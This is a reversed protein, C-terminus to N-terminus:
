PGTPPLPTQKSPSPIRQGRAEGQEQGQTCIAQGQLPQAGSKAAEQIRKKEPQQSLVVLNSQCWLLQIWLIFALPKNHKSEFKVQFLCYVLCSNGWQRTLVLYFGPCNYSIVTRNTKAHINAELYFSINMSYLIQGGSLVPLYIKWYYFRRSLIYRPWLKKLVLILPDKEFINTLM